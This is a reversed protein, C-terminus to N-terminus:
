LRSKRKVYASAETPRIEQGTLQAESPKGRDHAPQTRTRANLSVIFPCRCTIELPPM